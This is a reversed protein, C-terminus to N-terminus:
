EKGCPCNTGHELLWMKAYLCGDINTVTGNSEYVGMCIAHANSTRMVPNWTGSLVHQTLAQVSREDYEVKIPTCNTRSVTIWTTTAIGEDYQAKTPLWVPTQEKKAPKFACFAALSYLVISVLGALCIENRM